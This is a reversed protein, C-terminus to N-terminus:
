EPTPRPPASASMPSGPTADGGFSAKMAPAAITHSTRAYSSGLVEEARRNAGREVSDGFDRLYEFAFKEVGWHKYQEVHAIEHAWWHPSDSFSPPSSKFVIIDDVTVAYESDQYRVGKGIFNPLTIEVRGVSFRARDLVDPPFRGQLASRVDAPLPQAKSAHRERAARVAAALPAAVIQLPNQQALVNAAGMAASHGLENSLRTTFTGVDFIFTGAYGGAAAAAEQAKQYLYRQPDNVLQAAGAVTAGASKGLEQYPKYIAKPDANGTVVKATNIVVETPATVVKVTSNIASGVTKKLKDFPGALAASAAIAAAVAMTM